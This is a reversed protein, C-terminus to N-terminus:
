SLLIVSGRNKVVRSGLFVQMDSLGVLDKGVGGFFLLVVVLPLHSNYVLLVTLFPCLRGLLLHLWIGSSIVELPGCPPERVGCEGRVEPLRCEM